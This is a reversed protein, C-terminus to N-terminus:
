VHDVDFEASSMDLQQEAAEDVSNLLTALPGEKWPHALIQDINRYASAFAIPALAQNDKIATNDTARFVVFPYSRGIKDSSPAIVGTVTKDNEDGAFVFRFNPSFKFVKKWKDEYRRNLLTVGDQIWDDLNVLERVKLNHKIFDAHLPMKGCCGVVEHVMPQHSVKDQKNIFNFM